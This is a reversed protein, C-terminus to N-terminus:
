YEDVLLVNFFNGLSHEIRPVIADFTEITEEHKDEADAFLPSLQKEPPLRYLSDARQLLYLTLPKKEVILSEASVFSHAQCVIGIKVLRSAAVFYLMAARRICRKRRSLSAAHALM